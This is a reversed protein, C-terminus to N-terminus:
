GVHRRLHERLVQAPQAGVIRDVPRGHKFIILTPISMVGFRQATTPNEDVNLKAVIARGAFERALQEVAPAIMRCPGCWAAWFDVLVPKDTRGIVQDFTADTLTIPESAGAGDHKASAGNRGTSTHTSTRAWSPAGKLSVAPGESLRPMAGGGLLYELGARLDDRSLAGRARLLVRGDKIFLAEPAVTVDYRAVLGPNDSANVKAILARGAYTRALDNLADDMRRCPECDDKWFVVLLPLGVNLVRDFSQESTHVPTDLYM